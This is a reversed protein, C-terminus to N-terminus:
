YTPTLMSSLLMVVTSISNVALDLDLLCHPLFGYSLLVKAMLPQQRYRAGAIADSRAVRTEQLGAIAIGHHILQAELLTYRGMVFDDKHMNDVADKLTRVNFTIALFCPIWAAPCQSACGYGFTWQQSQETAKQSHRPILHFVGDQHLPMCQQDTLTRVFAWNWKLLLAGDALLPRADCPVEPSLVHDTSSFALTNVMENLPDGQHGKVHFSHVNAPGYLAELGQMFMRLYSEIPYAASINYTADMARGVMLADFHFVVQQVFARKSYAFAVAWFLASAESTASDHLTAGIYQSSSVDMCVPGTWWGHYRLENHHIEVSSSSTAVWAWASCQDEVRASGDTHIHLINLFEESHARDAIWSMTSSHFPFDEPLAHQPSLTWSELFQLFPTFDPATVTNARSDLPLLLDLSIRHSRHNLRDVQRTPSPVQPVERDQVDVPISECVLTDLSLQSVPATSESRHSVHHIAETGIVPDGSETSRASAGADDDDDEDDTVAIIAVPHSEITGRGFGVHGHSTHEDNDQRVNVTYSSVPSESEATEPVIETDSQISHSPTRLLERLDYSSSNDDRVSPNPQLFLEILVGHIFYVGEHHSELQVGNVWLDATYHFLDIDLQVMFDDKRFPVRTTIPGIDVVDRVMGVTYTKTIM